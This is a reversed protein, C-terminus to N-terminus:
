CALLYNLFLKQLLVSFFSIYAFFTKEMHRLMFHGTESPIGDEELDKNLKRCIIAM